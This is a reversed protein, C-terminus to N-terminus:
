RTPAALLDTLRRLRLMPRIRPRHPDTDPRSRADKLLRRRRADAQLEAHRVRHLDLATFADM